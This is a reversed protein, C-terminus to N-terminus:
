VQCQATPVWSCNCRCANRAPRHPLPGPPAKRELGTLKGRLITCALQCEDRSSPPKPAQIVLDAASAPGLREGAM